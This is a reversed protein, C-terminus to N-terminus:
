KFHKAETLSNLEIQNRIDHDNIWYHWNLAGKTNIFGVGKTVLSCM